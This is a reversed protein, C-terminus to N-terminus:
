IDKLPIRITSAVGDKENNISIRGHYLKLIRQVITLGLGFMGKRGKQFPQYIQNIVHPEIKSGDNWIYLVSEAKENNVHLTIELRAAAHRLHNDLLNEIMSRLTDEDGEIAVSQLNLQWTIEPRQIDMRQAIKEVLKNLYIEEQVPAQTALYDLRTLFLLQKVLKEMREGEEDIVQISGSIDGKPYVGDQIAQAYSRIVMVPTKLEHSINQLMSQQAEDQRVLQQRMTEISRALRGIEDDQKVDLPEHWNREAIAKVHQEMKILPRTLYRVMLLSAFWSIVLVIGAYLMTKFFLNKVFQEEDSKKMFTVQYLTHGYAMDKRIVYRLEASDNKSTYLQRSAQQFEAKQMIEGLLVDPLAQRGQSPITTGDELMIFGRIFGRVNPLTPLQEETIHRKQVSPEMLTDIFFGRILSPIILLVIIYLLLSVLSFVLWIKVTLSLNKM